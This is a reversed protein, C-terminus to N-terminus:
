RTVPSPASTTKSPMPPGAIPPLGVWRRHPCASCVRRRSAENRRPTSCTLVGPPWRPKQRMSRVPADVTTRLLDFSRKAGTRNAAVLDFLLAPNTPLGENKRLAFPNRILFSAARNADLVGGAGNGRGERAEALFKRNYVRGASGPALQAVGPSKEPVEMRLFVDRTDAQESLFHAALAV